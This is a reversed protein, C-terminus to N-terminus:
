AAGGRTLRTMQTLRAECIDLWRLEAEAQAFRADEVLVPSLARLDGPETPPATTQAAAAANRRRERRHYQLAETRLSRQRVIVDLARRRGAALALLVKALLEDRTPAPDDTEAAFWDALADRGARTIAYTTHDRCAAGVFRATVSVLGDTELRELLTALEGEEGRDDQDGPEPEQGLWEHLAAALSGADMDALDLLALVGMRIPM